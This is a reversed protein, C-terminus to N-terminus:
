SEDPVGGHRGSLVGLIPQPSQRASVRSQVGSWGQPFEQM